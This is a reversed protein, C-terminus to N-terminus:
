RKYGGHVFALKEEDTLHESYIQMMLRREIKKMEPSKFPTPIDSIFMESADHLLAARRDLVAIHAVVMSHLLVPYFVKCQGTFRCIRSLSMAIDHLKPAPLGLGIKAGSYSFIFADDKVPLPTACFDDPM